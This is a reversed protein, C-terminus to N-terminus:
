LSPVSGGKRTANSRVGCVTVGKEGYFLWSGGKEGKDRFPRKSTGQNRMSRAANTSATPEGDSRACSAVGSVGGAVTGTSEGGVAAEGTAAGDGAVTTGVM